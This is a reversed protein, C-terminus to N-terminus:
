YHQSVHLLTLNTLANTMGFERQELAAQFKRLRVPKSTLDLKAFLGIGQTERPLEVM